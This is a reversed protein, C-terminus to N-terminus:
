KVFNKNIFKYYKYHEPFAQLNDLRTLMFELQNNITSHDRNIVKGIESMKLELNIRLFFSICRRAATLEPTKQGNLLTDKNFGGLFCVDSIINKVTQEITASDRYIINSAIRMELEIRKNELM